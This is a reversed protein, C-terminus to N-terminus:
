APTRSDRSLSWVGAAAALLVATLAFAPGFGAADVVLGAIAPGLVGGLDSSMSYAAVPGGGRRKALVDALVAQQGPNALASGAGAVLMIAALAWLSPAFGMAAYSTALIALGLILMPKRGVTDTWRGSPFIFAANGAAYAALIWAAMTADGGFTVAVLLPILSVRVGFSAWGFTFVSFLLARFQPVRLARKLTLETEAGNAPDGAGAPSPASAAQSGRLAFAVIAAAVLLTFFYFVFPARLGFVAVIGGLVPGFLGGLLFGAANLSAVRGRSEVPSVKALLATAAVTFLTSGIGGAGRLIVFQPYNAALAAAGTSVAVILIGITYTRREGMRAVAWGALPASVLRMLAFASVIASAAFNSVGFELAFQPIAPAVVGYGLAVAFGGAVLAWVEFPLPTKPPKTPKAPKTM